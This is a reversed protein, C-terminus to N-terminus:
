LPPGLLDYETLLWRLREFSEAHEEAFDASKEKLAGYLKTFASGVLKLGGSIKKRTGSAVDAVAFKKELKAGFPGVKLGTELVVSAAPHQVADLVESIAERADDWEAGMSELVEAHEHSLEKLGESMQKFGDVLESVCEARIQEGLKGFEANMLGRVAAIDKRAQAVEETVHRRTKLHEQTGGVEATDFIGM